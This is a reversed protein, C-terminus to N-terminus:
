QMRAAHRVEIRAKAYDVMFPADHLMVNDIVSGAIRGAEIDTPYHVGGIVRNHAYIGARDFIAAAKEPLM